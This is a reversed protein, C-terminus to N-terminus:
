SAPQIQTGLQPEEIKGFGDHQSGLFCNEKRNVGKKLRLERPRLGGINMDLKVSLISSQAEWAVESHLFQIFYFGTKRQNDKNGGPHMQTYKEYITFINGMM